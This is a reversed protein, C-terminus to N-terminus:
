ENRTIDMRSVDGRAGAARQALSPGPGAADPMDGAFLM